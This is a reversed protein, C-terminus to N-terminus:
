LFIGYRGLHDLNPKIYAELIGDEDHGGKCAMM